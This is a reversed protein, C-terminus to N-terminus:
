VASTLQFINVEATYTLQSTIKKHWYKSYYELHLISDM